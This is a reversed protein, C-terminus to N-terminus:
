LNFCCQADVLGLKGERWTAIWLINRPANFADTIYTFQSEQVETLWSEWNAGKGKLHVRINVIGCGGQYAFQIGDIDGSVSISQGDLDQSVWNYGHTSDGYGGYDPTIFNNAKDAIRLNIIGLGRQYLVEIKGISAFSLSVVNNQGYDHTVDIVGDYEDHLWPTTATEVKAPIDALYADQAAQIVQGILSPSPFDMYLSGLTKGQMSSGLITNLYTSLKPNIADAWEKPKGIAPGACSAYTVFWTSNASQANAAKNLHDEVYKWKGSTYTEQYHDEVDLNRTGSQQALLQKDWDGWFIGHNSWPGVIVRNVVVIKGRVDRLAPVTTQLYFFAKFIPKEAISNFLTMFASESISSGEQKICMVICETRNYTLFNICDQLVFEYCDPDNSYDSTKDFYAWQYKSVKDGHHLAFNEGGNKSKVYNLRIDLLRVGMQLQELPSRDQCQTDSGGHLAASDHTGPLTIQSILVGDDIAAMWSCPAAQNTNTSQPDTVTPYAM